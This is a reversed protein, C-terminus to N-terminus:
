EAGYVRHTGIEHYIVTESDRFSFIIRYRHDVSYAYFGDLPGHLKHARLQPDFPDNRFLTERTEAKKIISKSLKKAAKLFRASRIIKIGNGNKM